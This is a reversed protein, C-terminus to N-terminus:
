AAREREPAAPLELRPLSAVYSEADDALILTTKGRKRAILDGKRIAAYARDKGIGYTECFERFRYARKEM